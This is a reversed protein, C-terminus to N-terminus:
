LIPRSSTSLAQELLPLSQPIPQPIKMPLVGAALSAARITYGPGDDRGKSAIVRTRIGSRANICSQFVAIARRLAHFLKNYRGRFYTM